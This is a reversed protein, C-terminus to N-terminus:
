VVDCVGLWLEDHKHQRKGIRLRVTFHLAHTRDAVGHGALTQQLLVKIRELRTRQHRDDRLDGDLDVALEAHLRPHDLHRGLCGHNATVVSIVGPASARVLRDIGEDRRVVLFPRAEVTLCRKSSRASFEEVVERRKHVTLLMEM